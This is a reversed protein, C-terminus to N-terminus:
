TMNLSKKTSSRNLDNGTSLPLLDDPWHHLNSFMEVTSTSLITFLLGIVGTELTGCTESASVRFWRRRNRRFEDKGGSFDSPDFRNLSLYSNQCIHFFSYKGVSLKLTTSKTRFTSLFVGRLCRSCQVLLHKWVTFAHHTSYNNWCRISDVVPIDSLERQQSFLQESTKFFSCFGHSNFRSPCHETLVYIAYM